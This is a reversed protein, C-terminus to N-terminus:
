RLWKKEMTKENSVPSSLPADSDCVFYALLKAPTTTSANASIMHVGNAPEYFTQGAQFVAADSGKVQSRITGEVVYGIVPCPHSHPPSSEGPGYNVEVLTVKLKEGNMPALPQNMVMRAREHAAHAEQALASSSASLITALILLDCKFNNNMYNGENACLSNHCHVIAYTLTKRQTSVLPESRRLSVRELDVLANTRSTATFIGRIKM